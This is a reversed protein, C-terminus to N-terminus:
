REDGDPFLTTLLCALIVACVHPLPPNILFDSCCCSCNAICTVYDANSSIIVADQGCSGCCMYTITCRQIGWIIRLLLAQYYTLLVNYDYLTWSRRRGKKAGAVGGGLYDMFWLLLCLLFLPPFGNVGRWSCYFGVVYLLSKECKEGKGSQWFWRRVGVEYNRIYWVRQLLLLWCVVVVRIVPLPQVTKDKKEYEINCCFM